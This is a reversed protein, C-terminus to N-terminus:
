ATRLLWPEGEPLAAGPPDVEEAHATSRTLVTGTPSASRPTMTAVYACLRPLEAM